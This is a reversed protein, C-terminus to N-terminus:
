LSLRFRGAAREGWDLIGTLWKLVTKYLTGFNCNIGELLPLKSTDFCYLINCATTDNRGGWVYVLHGFAM